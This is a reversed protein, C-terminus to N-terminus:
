AVIDNISGLALPQKIGSDVFMNMTIGYQGNRRMAASVDDINLLLGGFQATVVQSFDGFILSSCTGSATGKTLNSPVNTTCLVEYGDIQDMSQGLANNYGMLMVGSGADIQTRKAQSRVKFNTLFKCMSADANKQLVETILDLAKSYSIAGGNTGMAINNIAPSYSLIGTPKNTGDGNIVAAEFAVAMVRMMSETFNADVSINSQINLLMSIDVASGLLKPRLSRNAFTADTPSQTANEGAWFAVPTANWGVLDTNATLGTFSTVGLATLVTKAYLADFFGVKETNITNGGLNATGTASQTRKQVMADLVNRSLYVAGNTNVNLSRAEAEGEQLLEKEFGSISAIGRQSMESVLKSISFNKMEREEPTLGDNKQRRNESREKGFKERLEAAEIESNFAEVEGDITKLKALEDTNLERKETEATAILARGEARKADQLQRLDKSTKM